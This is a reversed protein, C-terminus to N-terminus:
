VKRIDHYARFISPMLLISLYRGYQLSISHPLNAEISLYASHAKNLALRSNNTLINPNVIEFKKNKGSVDILLQTEDNFSEPNFTINAESAYASQCTITIRSM